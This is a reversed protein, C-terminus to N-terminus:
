PLTVSWATTDGTEFGNVFIPPEGEKYFVRGFGIWQEGGFASLTVEV